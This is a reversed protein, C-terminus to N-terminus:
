LGIRDVFRADPRVANLAVGLIKGGQAELELRLAAIDEVETEDAKAVIVISDIDAALTLADSSREFSPADVVVWDTSAKLKNWYEPRSLLRVQQGESLKQNRFNSVLLRTDSVQNVTLLKSQSSDGKYTPTIDYLPPLGLSGDYSRDYGSVGCFGAEFAHFAQNLRFDLDMLWANRSARSAAIMAFSVAMSSAGEGERASVFMISRSGANPTQRAATRYLNSLSQRLDKM